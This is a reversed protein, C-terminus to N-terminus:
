DAALSLYRAAPEYDKNKEHLEALAFSMNARPGRAMLRNDAISEM